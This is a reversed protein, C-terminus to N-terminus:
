RSTPWQTWLQKIAQRYIVM